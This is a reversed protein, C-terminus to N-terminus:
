YNKHIVISRYDEPEGELLLEKMGSLPFQALTREYDFVQKYFSKAVKRGFTEDCYELNKRFTLLAKKTWKVKAM